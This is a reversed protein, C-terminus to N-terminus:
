RRRLRVLNRQRDNGPRLAEVELPNGILVDDVSHGIDQLLLFDAIILLRQMDDRAGRVAPHPIREAQEILDNGVTRIRDSEFIRHFNGATQRFFHHNGERARQQMFLRFRRQLQQLFDQAGAFFGATEKLLHDQKRTIHQDILLCFALGERVIGLLVAFSELIERLLCRRREEVLHDFGEVLGLPLHAERRLRVDIQFHQSHLQGLGLRM